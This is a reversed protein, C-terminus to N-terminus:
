NRLSVTTQYIEEKEIPQGFPKLKAKIRLIMQVSNGIKRFGFEPPELSVEVKNDTLDINNRKLVGNNVQYDIQGTETQLVLNNVLNEDLPGLVAQAAKIDQSIKNMIMSSNQYLSSVILSNVKLNTVQYLFNTVLALVVTLVTVYILVEILSIGKKKNFM